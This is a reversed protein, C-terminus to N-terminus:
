QGAPFLWNQVAKRLSGGTELEGSLVMTEIEWSEGEKQVEKIGSRVQTLRAEDSFRSGSM